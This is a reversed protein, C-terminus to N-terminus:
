EDPIQDREPRIAHRVYEAAIEDLRPDGKEVPEIERTNERRFITRKQGPRDPDDESIWCHLHFTTM